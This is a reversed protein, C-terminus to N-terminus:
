QLPMGNAFADVLSQSFTDLESYLSQYEEYTFRYESNQTVADIKMRKVTEGESWAPWTKARKDFCQKGENCKLIYKLESYEVENANEEGMWYTQYRSKNPNGKRLFRSLYSMFRKSVKRRASENEETWAFSYLNDNKADFNGFMFPLDFTHTAGFISGWPAPIDDYNFDYRYVDNSYDSAFSAINDTALNWAYSSAEEVGWYLPEYQPILIDTVELLEPDAILQEWLLPNNAGPNNFFGYIVGWLYSSENKTSGLMLPKKHFQGAKMADLGADKLVYGDIFNSASRPVLSALLDAPLARMFEEIWQSTQSTRFVVAEEPTTAHGTAILLNEILNNSIAEGTLSPLASPFGASCVAHDFLNESLDSQLLGWVSSCGSSNGAITVLNPNGGFTRINNRVWELAKMMDLLAYNGSSDLPDEGDLFGNHLWGLAGLRFNLTVVVSNTERALKAGNFTESSGTGRANSGGHIWVFVPLEKRKGKPRWVNLFLCDENGISQGFEEPNTTGWITGAQPCVDGFTSADRIDSWALPDQPAKWRLEGVPAKAYPIGRYSQTRYKDLAGQIKGGSVERVLNNRSHNKEHNSTHSTAWSSSASWFLISASFCICISKIIRMIREKETKTIIAM